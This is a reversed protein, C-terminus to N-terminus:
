ALKGLLVDLAWCGKPHETIERFHRYLDIQGTGELLSCLSTRVDEGAYQRETLRMLSASRHNFAAETERPSPVFHRLLDAQQRLEEAFYREGGPVIKNVSITGLPPNMVLVWAATAVWEAIAKAITTPEVSFYHPDLAGITLSTVTAIAAGTIPGMVPMKAEWQCSALECARDAANMEAKTAKGDAYLETTVIGDLFRMDDPLYKVIRRCCACAFLLAKRDYESAKLADLMVIPNQCTNWEQGTM